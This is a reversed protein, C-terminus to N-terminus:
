SKRSVYREARGTDVVRIAESADSEYLEADIHNGIFFKSLGVSGLSRAIRNARHVELGRYQLLEVIAPEPMHGDFPYRANFSQILETSPTDIEPDKWLWKGIRWLEDHATGVTVVRPDSVTDALVPLVAEAYSNANNRTRSSGRYGGYDVNDLFFFSRHEQTYARFRSVRDITEDVTRTTGANIHMAIRLFPIGISRSCREMDQMVNSKGSGPAGELLVSSHEIARSLIARFESFRPEVCTSLKESVSAVDVPKDPTFQVFGRGNRKDELFETGLEHEYHTMSQNGYWLTNTSTNM